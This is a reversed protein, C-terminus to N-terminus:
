HLREANLGEMPPMVGALYTTFSAPCAQDEFRCLATLAGQQDRPKRVAAAPVLASRLLTAV